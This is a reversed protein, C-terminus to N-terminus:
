PTIRANTYYRYLLQCHTFLILLAALILLFPSLSCFTKRKLFPTFLIVIFNSLFYLSSSSNPFIPHNNICLFLTVQCFNHSSSSFPPQDGTRREHYLLHQRLHQHHNQALWLFLFLFFLFLNHSWPFSLCEQMLGTIIALSKPQLFSDDNDDDDDDEAPYNQHCEMALM